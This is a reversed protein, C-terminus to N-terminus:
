CGCGQAIVGVSATCWCSVEVSAATALGTQQTAMSLEALREMKSGLGSLAAMVDQMSGELGEVRSRFSSAFRVLDDVGDDGGDLALRDHSLRSYQLPVLASMTGVTRYQM